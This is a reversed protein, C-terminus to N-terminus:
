IFKHEGNGKRQGTEKRPEKRVDRSFVRNLFTSPFLGSSYTTHIGQQWCLDPADPNDWALAKSAASTPAVSTAISV